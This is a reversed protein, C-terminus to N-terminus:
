RTITSIEGSLAASTALSASTLSDAIRLTVETASEMIDSFLHTHILSLDRFSLTFHPIFSPDRHKDSLTVWPSVIPRQEALNRGKEEQHIEADADRYSCCSPLSSHHTHTHTQAWTASVRPLDNWIWKNLLRHASSVQVVSGFFHWSTLLKTQLASGGGRSGHTHTHTHIHQHTLM